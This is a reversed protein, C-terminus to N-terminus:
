LSVCFLNRKGSLTPRKRQIDCRSSTFLSLYHFCKYLFHLSSSGGLHAFEIVVAKFYPCVHKLLYSVVDLELFKCQADHTYGDSAFCGTYTPQSPVTINVIYFGGSCLNSGMLYAFGTEENIAITHINTIDAGFEKAYQKLLLGNTPIQNTDRLNLLVNMDMYQMRGYETVSYVYNKYVKMARWESNGGNSPPELTGLYKPNNPTTIDVFSLGLYTGILAIENGLDDYYGWVDNTYQYSLTTGFAMSLDQLNLFAYLNINECPYSQDATKAKSNICEITPTVSNSKDSGQIAKISSLETQPQIADRLLGCMCMQRM